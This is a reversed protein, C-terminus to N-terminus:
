SSNASSQGSAQSSPDKCRHRQCSVREAYEIVAAITCSARHGSACTTGVVRTAIHPSAACCTNGVVRTAIHRSAGACPRSLSRNEGAGEHGLQSAHLWQAAGPSGPVNHASHRMGHTGQSCLFRLAAGDRPIRACALGNCRTVHVGEVFLCLFFLLLCISTSMPFACRGSCIHNSAGKLM